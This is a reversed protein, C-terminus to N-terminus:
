LKDLVSIENGFNGLFVFGVVETQLDRTMWVRFGALEIYYGM